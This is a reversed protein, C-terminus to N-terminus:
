RFAVLIFSCYLLGNNKKLISSALINTTEDITLDDDNEGRKRKKSLNKTGTMTILNTPEVFQEFSKEHLQMVLKDIDTTNNSSILKYDIILYVMPAENEEDNSDFISHEDNSNNGIRLHLSEYHDNNLIIYCCKKFSTQNSPLESISVYSQQPDVRIVRVNTEYLEAVALIEPQGGWATTKEMKDCYQDVTKKTTNLLWDEDIKGPQRNFDAVQKRLDKITIKDAIDLVNCLSSFLCDGGGLADKRVFKQTIGLSDRSTETPIHDDTNTNSVSSSFIKTANTISSSEGDESAQETNMISNDASLDSPIDDEMNENSIIEPRNIVSTDEFDVYDNYKLEEQIFNRVLLRMRNDKYKFNSKEEEENRKNYLYLPRYHGVIGDYYIFVCKKYSSIDDVYKLVDIVVKEPGCETRSIICLLYKPYLSALVQLIPSGDLTAGQKIKDWYEEQTKYQAESLFSDVNVYKSQLIHSAVKEHLTEPSIFDVRDSGNLVSSYLSLGDKRNVEALRFEYLPEFANNNINRLKQNVLQHNNKIQLLENLAQDYAVQNELSLGNLLHKVFQSEEITPSLDLQSLDDLNDGNLFEDDETFIDEM